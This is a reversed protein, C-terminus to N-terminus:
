RPSHEANNRAAELGVRVMAKDSESLSALGRDAITQAADVSGARASAEILTLYTFGIPVAAIMDDAIKAALVKNGAGLVAEYMQVCARVLAKQEFDELMKQESKSDEDKSRFNASMRSLSIRGTVYGEPKDFLELVESYRRADVLMPLIQQGFAFKIMGTLKNAARMRDYLALVREPTKLVRDLAAVDMVDQYATSGAEIRAEVADRRTKLAEIASPVKEGLREIDHLLFSLRVGAYGPSEAGHDFCWLYEALAEDYRGQQVLARAHEARAMADNEHGVLKAKARAISDKGALADGADSLFKEPDCYGVLRDIETGDARLLLITPYADVHFRKAIETEKEADLKIAVCHAAAWALVKPDKWTITDLKKCPVCWTTFVDVLVIKKEAAARGRAGDFTLDAFLGDHTACGLFTLGLVVGLALKALLM